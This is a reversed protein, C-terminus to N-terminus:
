KSSDGVLHVGGGNVGVLSLLPGALACGIALTLVPNGLCKAAILTQWHSLDGKAAFLTPAQGSSQFRVTDSGLTRDPLVFAGSVHWGPRTTTALTLEPEQDMLYEMFAVRKKLAIIVGMSFLSRRADEGSGGFVEMPLVWERTGAHTALRLLRGESGDETRVTRAVVMVPTSVWEDAPHREGEADTRTTHWYVGPRLKRGGELQVPHEYVAWSPRVPARLPSCASVFHAAIRASQDAM